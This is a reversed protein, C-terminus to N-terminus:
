LNDLKVRSSCSKQVAITKMTTMNLKDLLEDAKAKHLEKM